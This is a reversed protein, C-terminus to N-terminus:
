ADIIDYNDPNSFLKKLVLNNMAHSGKYSELNGIVFGGSTFMDGLADIIKHRVFEDPWFVKNLTADGTDNLAIVNNENAGRGMGHSKLYEWESYKGFTRARAINKVFNKVAKETGDFVYSCTQKGIIKEKYVLTANINLSNDKSPSLKVFGDTKRGSLMNFLYIKMRTFFPIKRLADKARVIVTKKVVIKKLKGSTTGTDKIANYFEIASGDLIPTEAGDIEIVAGDVGAIFLAAMLHEITKVHTSNLSGVTTNRMTTDGVNDFRASILESSLDVRRFFIGNQKSPKIVLNVPLGSHIGVGSFKIQKKITPM